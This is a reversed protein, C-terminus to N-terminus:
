EEGTRYDGELYDEFFEEEEEDTPVRDFESKFYKLCLINIRERFEAMTEGRSPKSM